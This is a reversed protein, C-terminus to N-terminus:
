AKAKKQPRASAADQTKGRDDGGGDDDSSTDSPATPAASQAASEQADPAGTAEAAEASQAEAAREEMRKMEADIEARSLGVLQMAVPALAERSVLQSSFLSVIENLPTVQQPSVIVRQGDATGYIFDYTTSLVSNLFTALAQTTSNFARLQCSANASFRAGENLFASPVGFATSVRQGLQARVEVLDSRAEPPRTPM